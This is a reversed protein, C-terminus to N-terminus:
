LDPCIVRNPIFLIAIFFKNFNFSAWTSFLVVIYIKLLFSQSQIQM